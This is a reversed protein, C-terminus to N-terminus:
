GQTGGNGAHKKMLVAATRREPTLKAQALRQVDAATVANVRDLNDFLETWSGRIQDASALALALRGPQRLQRITDALYRTKVKELEAASPGDQALRTIEEYVMQEARLPDEGAAVNLYVM